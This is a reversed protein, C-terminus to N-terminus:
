VLLVQNGNLSGNNKGVPQDLEVGVWLGSAFEPNVLMDYCEEERPM